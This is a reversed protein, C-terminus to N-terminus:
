FLTLSLSLSLSLNLSQSLPSLSLPLSGVRLAWETGRDEAGGSCRSMKMLRSCVSLSTQESYQSRIDRDDRCGGEGETRERDRERERRGEREEETGEGLAASVIAPRRACGVLRRLVPAACARFQARTARSFDPFAGTRAPDELGGAIGYGPM